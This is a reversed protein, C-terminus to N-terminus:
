PNFNIQKRKKDLELKLFNITTKYKDASEKSLKKTSELLKTMSEIKKLNKYIDALQEQKQKKVRLRNIRLKNKVSINSSLEINQKNTKKPKYNIHSIHNVSYNKAISLFLYKQLINVM